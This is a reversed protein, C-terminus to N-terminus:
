WWPSKSPGNKIARGAEKAFVGTWLGRYYVEQQKLSWPNNGEIVYLGSNSVVIDWGVCRALFFTKSLRLALECVDKYFPAKWGKLMFGNTPHRETVNFGSEQSSAGYCVGTDDFLCTLGGAERNDSTNNGVASKGHLAIIHPKNSEDLLTVVRYSFPVYESLHLTSEHPTLREQLLFCSQMTGRHNYGELVKAISTVSAAEGSVSRFGETKKDFLLVLISKGRTGEVPKIVFQTINNRSIFDILHDMTNIITFGNIRPLNPDYVAYIKPTPIGFAMTHTYFILKNETICRYQIPNLAMLSLIHKKWGVFSTYKEKSLDTRWLHYLFFEGVEMEHLYWLAKYRKWSTALSSVPLRHKIFQLLFSVSNKIFLYNMSPRSRAHIFPISM